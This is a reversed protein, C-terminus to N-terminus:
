GRAARARPEQWAPAAAADAGAPRPLTPVLDIHGASGELTTQEDSLWPVRMTLPVRSAEEYFSRKELMGHDGAMEGHESTFVVVTDTPSARGQGARRYDEEGHPRGAYCQRPLARAAHALGGREDSGAGIGPHTRWIYPDDAPDGCEYMYQTYYNGRVRNYLSVGEPRQLFAPGVSADGPRVPREAAGNYPPHPEFTSVYLVFPRESNREIFGAAQDGLFSAMQFEEPLRHARRPRSSSSAGAHAGLGARIRQCGSSAM